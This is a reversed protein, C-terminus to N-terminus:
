LSKLALKIIPEVALGPNEKIIKDIVKETAKKNFGLMVMASLAENKNTNNQSAVIHTDGEIKGVKDKLDILIRQATKAGIGKISKLTNVDDTQIAQTLEMTPFTSLMVMATNSGVGNVSILHRFLTREEKDYFGYLSRADERIVFHTWLLVESITQIKQYSNLSIFVQYGINSAEVVAYTPTVEILQGKIYEYM